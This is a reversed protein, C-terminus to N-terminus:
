RSQGSAGHPDNVQVYSADATAVLEDEHPSPSNRPRGTRQSRSYLRRTIQPIVALCGARPCLRAPIHAALRRGLHRTLSSAHRKTLPPCASVAGLTTSTSRRRQPAALLSAPIRGSFERECCWFDHFLVMVLGRQSLFGDRQIRKALEGSASAPPASCKM